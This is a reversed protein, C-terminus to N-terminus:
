ACSLQKKLLWKEAEGVTSFVNVPMGRNVAVAEAFQMLDGDANLDVYAIARFFGHSELSGESAIEFVKYTGLRPGDLREEILLYPCKADICRQLIEELYRKVNEASNEGTVTAHMYQHKKRIELNYTM